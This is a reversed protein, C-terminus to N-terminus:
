KRLKKRGWGALGVLGSGLLMMAGPEPVKPPACEAWSSHVAIADVDLIGSGANAIRIKDYPVVFTPLPGLGLIGGWIEYFTRADGLGYSNRSVYKMDVWYSTGAVHAQLKVPIDSDGSEVYLITDSGFSDRFIYGFSVTLRDGPDFAARIGDPSDLINGPNLVGDNNSFNSAYYLAAQSGGALGLMLALAVVGILLKRGM